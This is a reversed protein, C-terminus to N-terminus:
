LSQIFSVLSMTGVVPWVLLSIPDIHITLGTVFLTRFLCCSFPATGRDLVGLGSIM